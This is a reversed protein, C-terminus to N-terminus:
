YQKFEEDVKGLPQTYDSMKAQTPIFKLVIFSGKHVKIIPAYDKLQGYSVKFIEQMIKDREMVDSVEVANGVISAAIPKDKDVITIAAKSNKKLNEYKTTQSKTIFLLEDKSNVTYFIVSTHPQNDHDITALVAQTHNKIFTGISNSAFLNFM